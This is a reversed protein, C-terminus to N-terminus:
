RAGTATTSAPPLSLPAVSGAGNGDKSMFRRLGGAHVIRERTPLIMEVSSEPCIESPPAPVIRGFGREFMAKGEQSLEVHVQGTWSPHNMAPQHDIDVCSMLQGHNDRVQRVVLVNKMFAALYLDIEDPESQALTPFSIVVFLAAAACQDIISPM